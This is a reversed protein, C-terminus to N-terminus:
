QGQLANNTTFDRAHFAVLSCSTTINGDTLAFNLNTNHGSNKTNLDCGQVLYLPSINENISELLRFLDGEHQLSMELKVDSYYFMGDPINISKFQESQLPKEPSFSFRLEPIIYQEKLKILSDTWFVRDQKKVLGKEVLEQYKSGYEQYLRVQQQLFNVQSQLSNLSNIKPRELAKLEKQIEGYAYWSAVLLSNLVILLIFLKALFRKVLEDRLFSNLTM